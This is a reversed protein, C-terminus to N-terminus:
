RISIDKKWQKFAYDTPGTHCDQLKRYFVGNEEVPTRAAPRRRAGAIGVGRQLLSLPTNLVLKTTFHGAWFASADQLIRARDKQKLLHIKSHTCLVNRCLFNCWESTAAPTSDTTLLLSFDTSFIQPFTYAMFIHKHSVFMRTQPSPAILYM